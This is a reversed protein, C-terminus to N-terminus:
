SHAVCVEAMLVKCEMVVLFAVVVLVLFYLGTNVAGEGMM